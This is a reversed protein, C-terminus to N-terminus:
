CGCRIGHEDALRKRATKPDLCLYDTGGPGLVAFGFVIWATFPFGNPDPPASALTFRAKINEPNQMKWIGAWPSLVAPVSELPTEDPVPSYNGADGTVDMTFTIGTVLAQTVDNLGKLVNGPFASTPDVSVTAGLFVSYSSIVEDFSAPLVQGINAAAYQVSIPRSNPRAPVGEAVALAFGPHYQALTALSPM